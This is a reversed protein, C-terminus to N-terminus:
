FHWRAKASATQNTFSSRAELDYRLSLDVGGSTTYSLGAGVRGIWPSQELGYTV